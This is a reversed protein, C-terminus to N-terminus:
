AVGSLQPLSHAITQPKAGGRAAPLVSRYLQEWPRLITSFSFGTELAVKGACSEHDKADDQYSTAASSSAAMTTIAYGQFAPTM